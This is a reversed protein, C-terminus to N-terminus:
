VKENFYIFQSLIHFLAQHADEVIGYNNELVTLSVDALDKLVGGSFGSIGITIVGMARAARVAKLINESSGSSSIALLVDGKKLYHQTMWEYSNEHGIDNNLASLLAVNDALSSVRLRGHGNATGKALDCALHSAISSSGGNGISYVPRGESKAKVLIGLSKNLEEKNVGAIAAKLKDAYEEAYRGVSSLDFHTNLKANEDTYSPM